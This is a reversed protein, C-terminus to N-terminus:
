FLVVITVVLAITAAMISGIWGAVKLAKIRDERSSNITLYILSAVGSFALLFAMLLKLM